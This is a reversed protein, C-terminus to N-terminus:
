IDMGGLAVDCLFDIDWGQGNHMGREVFKSLKARLVARENGSRLVAVAAARLLCVGDGVIATSKDPTLVFQGQKLAELM